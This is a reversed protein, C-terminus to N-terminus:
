RGGREIAELRREIEDLQDLRREIRRLLEELPRAAASDTPLARSASAPLVAGDPLIVVTEAVSGSALRRALVPAPQLSPPETASVNEGAPPEGVLARELPAELPQLVVEARKSEGGPLVYQLSVPIGVPGHSVLQSLDQPSGVPRDNIAVIVTGPPVGARSAPLDHVVGIVFAGRPDSLRFRSQVSTDVPVTRVGLAPRGSGTGAVPSRTPAPVPLANPVAAPVAAPVTAVSPAPLRGAPEAFQRTRRPPPEAIAPPAVPATEFRPAPAMVPPAQAFPPPPVDALAVAPAPESPPVLVSRPPVASLPPPAGPVTPAAFGPTPVTTPQTMPPSIPPPVPAPQGIGSVPQTLGAAVPPQALGAAVPSQALGAAVPSPPAAAAVPATGAATAPQAPPFARAANEAPPAGPAQWTRGRSDTPRPSATVAVNEVRNDRGIAAKVEQGPAIAALAAALEDDNNLPKGDLALLVDQPRIGAKAAPGDPAVDVVSLRGTVVSDDVTLGLWGTGAGPLAASAAAVAPAQAPDGAPLTIPQGIAVDGAPLTAAPVPAFRSGEEAARSAAAAVLVLMAAALVFAPLPTAAAHGRPPTASAMGARVGGLGRGTAARDRASRRPCRAVRRSRLLSM